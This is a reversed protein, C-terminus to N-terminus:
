QDFAPDQSGKSVTGEEAEGLEVGRDGLQEPSEILPGELFQGAGPAGQEFGEFLGQEIGQGDLGVDEGLPLLHAHVDIVVDLELAV